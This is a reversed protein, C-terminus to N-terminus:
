VNQFLCFDRIGAPSRVGSWLGYDSDGRLLPEWNIKYISVLNCQIGHRV